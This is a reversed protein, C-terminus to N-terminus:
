EVDNDIRWELFVINIWRKGDWYVSKWSNDRRLLLMAGRVSPSGELGHAFVEVQPILTFTADTLSEHCAPIHNDEGPQPSKEMGLCLVFTGNKVDPDPATLVTIEFGNVWGEEDTIRIADPHHEIDGCSYRRLLDWGLAFFNVRKQTEDKEQLVLDVVQIGVSRRSAWDRSEDLVLCAISMYIIASIGGAQLQRPGQKENRHYLSSNRLGHRPMRPRSLFRRLM